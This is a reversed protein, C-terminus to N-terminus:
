GGCLPVLNKSGVIAPFFLYVSVGSLSSYPAYLKAALELMLLINSKFIAVSAVKGTYKWSICFFKFPGSTCPFLLAGSFVLLRLDCHDASRSAREHYEAPQIVVEIQWLLLQVARLLLDGSFVGLRFVLVKVFHVLVDATARIDPILQGGRCTLMSPAKPQGDAPQNGGIHNARASFATCRCSYFHHLILTTQSDV